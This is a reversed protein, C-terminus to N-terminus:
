SRLRLETVLHGSPACSNCSPRARGSPGSRGSRCRTTCGHGRTASCGRSVRDARAADGSLQRGHAAPAAALRRRSRLIPTSSFASGERWVVALLYLVMYSVASLITLASAFAIGNLM